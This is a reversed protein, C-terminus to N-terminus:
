RGRSRPSCPPSASRSSRRRGARTSPRQGHLMVVIGIAALMLVAIEGMTDFGRFDVLIVNVVNSGGGEPVSKDLYFESITHQPRTLVGYALGGVGLGALGSLLADRWRRRSSSDRPTQQPLVFLALLILLITVVEVSLQTLGLDPGSLFIFILSVILGVASMMIVAVIRERHFRITLGAAAILIIWPLLAIPPAPTTALTGPTWGLQYWSLFGALTAAGISLSVYRQMSGNDFWTSFRRASDIAVDM